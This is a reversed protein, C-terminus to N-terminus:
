SSRETAWESASSSMYRPSRAGAKCCLSLCDAWARRSEKAMQWRFSDKLYLVSEPWNSDRATGIYGSM